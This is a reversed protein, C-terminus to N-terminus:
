GNRGLGKLALTAASGSARRARGLSTLLAAASLITLVLALVEPRWWETWILILSGAVEITLSFAIALGFWEPLRDVPLLTLVSGGPILLMAAFVLLARIPSDGGFYVMPVAAVLLVLLGAHLRTRVHETV